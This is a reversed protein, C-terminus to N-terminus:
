KFLPFPNKYTNKLNKYVDITTPFYEMWYCRVGIKLLFVWAIIPLVTLIFKFNINDTYIM